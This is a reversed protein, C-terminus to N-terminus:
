LVQRQVARRTPAARPTPTPAPLSNLPGTGTPIHRAKAALTRNRFWPRLELQAGRANGYILTGHGERQQRLLDAPALPTERVSDTRTRRGWGTADRSYDANTQEVNGLLKSVTELTTTDKVGTLLLLLARHNNVITNADNPGYRTHLQSLDQVVSVLQVGQSAVTSAIGGLNNIPAINALEDLIPLM